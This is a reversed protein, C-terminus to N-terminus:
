RLLTYSINLQQSRRHTSTSLAKCVSEVVATINKPTRHISTQPAECVSETVAAINGPTRVTKAKECKPKDILIGTEKVKEVLYRVYPASPAERREFDTHLKRMCEAVNDHNKFYQQLIKWRQEPTYVVM